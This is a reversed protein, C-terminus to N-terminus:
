RSAISSGLLLLFIIIIILDGLDPKRSYYHNSQKRM